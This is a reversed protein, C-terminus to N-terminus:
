NFKIVPSVAPTGPIIRRMMYAEEEMELRREEIALRREEIELHRKRLRLKEEQIQLLADTATYTKVSFCFSIICM